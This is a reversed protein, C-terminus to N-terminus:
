RNSFTTKMGLTASVRAAFSYLMVGILAKDWTTALTDTEVSSLLTTPTEGNLILRRAASVPTPGGLLPLRTATSSGGGSPSRLAQPHGRPAAQGDRTEQHGKIHTAVM